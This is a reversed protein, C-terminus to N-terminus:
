AQASRALSRAVLEELSNRPAVYMDGLASRDYQPAPLARRDVKGNPLVPLAELFVFASPVFAQPLQETLYARLDRADLQKGRDAVVYGVLQHQGDDGDHGVVVCDRVAEHRALTATVEGPEVLVGRIKVQDDVRGAIELLGDARYRGRDGTFYVLDSEDNRFPNPRFRRQNEEPLNLYGLSRYPTRLVIEGTEGIGCLLGRLM